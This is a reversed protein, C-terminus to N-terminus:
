AGSSARRMMAGEAPTSSNRTASSASSLMCRWNVPANRWFSRKAWNPPATALILWSRRLIRVEAWSKASRISPLASGATARDAGFSTLEMVRATLRQSDVSAKPLASSGGGRNSRKAM